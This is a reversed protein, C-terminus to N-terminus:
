KPETSAKNLLKYKTSINVKFSELQGKIEDQDAASPTSIGNQDTSSPVYTSLLQLLSFDKVDIKDISEFTLRDISRLIKSYLGSATRNLDDELFEQNALLWNRMPERCNKLHNIILERLEKIKKNEKDIDNLEALKGPAKRLSRISTSSSLEQAESILRDIKKQYTDSALAIIIKDTRSGKAVSYQPKQKGKKEMQNDIYTRIKDISIIGTDDNSAAGGELGEILCSTFIGHSHSIGESHKYNDERSPADGASSTLTIRGEGSRVEHDKLDTFQDFEKKYAGRAALGSYCCDLITVTSTKGISTIITDMLEKMKIGCVFPESKRIDVPAIYGHGYGDVFGHGSFYFLALESQETKWFVDSIARRIKESTAELGVLYHSDPIVFNCTNPDILKKYVEKADNEAGALKPIEPDPYENIGVIIAQRKGQIM